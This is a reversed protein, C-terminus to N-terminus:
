KRKVFRGKSDRVPSTKAPELVADKPESPVEATSVGLLKEMKIENKWCEYYFALTNELDNNIRETVKSSKVLMKPAYVDDRVKSETWCRGFPMTVQATEYGRVYGPVWKERSVLEHTEKFEYSHLGLHTAENWREPIQVQKEWEVSFKVPDGFRHVYNVKFMKVYRKHQAVSYVKTGRRESLIECLAKESPSVLVVLYEVHHRPSSGYEKTWPIEEKIESIIGTLVRQYEEPKSVRPLFKELFQSDYTSKVKFDPHYGFLSETKM